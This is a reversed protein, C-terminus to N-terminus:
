SLIWKEGIIYITYMENIGVNLVFVDKQFSLKGLVRLTPGWKM